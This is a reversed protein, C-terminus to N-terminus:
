FRRQRRERGRIALAFLKKVDLVRILEGQHRIFGQAAGNAETDPRELQIALPVEKADIILALQEDGRLAALFTQNGREDDPEDLLVAPDLVTLMRGQISVVGAVAPTANPLPTPRRWEAITAIEDSFLAFRVGRRSFVQLTRSSELRESDVLTEETANNMTEVMM